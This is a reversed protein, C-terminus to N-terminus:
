ARPEMPLDSDHSGTSLASSPENTPNTASSPNPATANETTTASEVPNVPATSSATNPHDSSANANAPTEPNEAPNVASSVAPNVASSAAPNVASSMAADVSEMNVTASGQDAGRQRNARKKQKKQLHKELKKMEEEEKADLKELDQIEAEHQQKVMEIEKLKSESAQKQKKRDSRVLVFIVVCAVLVVVVIVIFVTLGSSTKWGKCVGEKCTGSECDEDAGCTKGRKCKASCVGGCDVDTEGASLVGDYCTFVDEQGASQTFVRTTRIANIAFGGEKLLQQLASLSSADDFFRKVEGESGSPTNVVLTANLSVGEELRRAATEAVAWEQILTDQM